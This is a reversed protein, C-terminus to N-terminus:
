KDWRYGHRRLAPMWLWLEAGGSVGAVLACIDGGPTGGRISHPAAPGFLGPALERLVFWALSGVVVATLPMSLWCAM